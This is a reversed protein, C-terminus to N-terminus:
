AGGQAALKAADRALTMDAVRELPMVARQTGLAVNLEQMYTIREPTLIIPTNYAKYQQVWNWQDTAIAETDPGVGDHYAKVYEQKSGPSNVYRFAKGYGALTRVLIDRKQAIASVSAFAGQNTFQPIEKPFEALIRVGFQAALKSFEPQAAGADVKKAAVAKFVDSSSGINVFTVRNLDVGNKRLVAATSVHLLAGLAGTGITKGELDRLTKVSPDSVYMEFSVPLMAGAVVKVQAGNEIAPFVQSFGTLIAIDSGGNVIAAMLKVGDSVNQTADNVGLNELYKRNKILAQLAFSDNAGTNIINVTDAARARGPAFALAAGAAL